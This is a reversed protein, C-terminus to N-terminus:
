EQTELHEGFEEYFREAILNLVGEYKTFLVKNVDGTLVDTDTIGLKEKVKDEDDCLKEYLPLNLNLVKVFEKLNQEENTKHLQQSLYLEYNSELKVLLNLGSQYLLSLEVDVGYPMEESVSRFSKQRQYDDYGVNYSVTISQTLNQNNNQEM